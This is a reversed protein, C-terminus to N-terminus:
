LLCAIFYSVTSSMSLPPFACGEISRRYRRRRPSRRLAGGSRPACGRCRAAGCARYRAAGGSAHGRRSAPRPRRRGGRRTSSRPASSRSCSRVSRMARRGARRTASTGSARRTRRTGGCSRTRAPNPGPSPRPSPRQSPCPSPRLDSAEAARGRTSTLPGYARCRAPPPAGALSEKGTKVSIKTLRGSIYALM